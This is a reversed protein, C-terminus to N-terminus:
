NNKKQLTNEGKPDQFSKNAHLIDRDSISLVNHGNRIFGNNLRRGTNYHLRGNFRENFNTIHMIKLPNNKIYNLKSKVIFESRINDIIHSIFNHNFKFNKFNQKQVKILKENNTILKKIEKYIDESTLNNLIIASRSTEPLGGRKSIIVASGRSAAELSTRGFPEEWRSCVVSISVKKLFNLIKEHKTYGNIDLNKHKFVINERPEDGFVVAKWKPFENLIDM